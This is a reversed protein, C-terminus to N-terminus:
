KEKKAQKELAEIKTELKANEVKLKGNEVKLDKVRQEYEAIKEDNSTQEKKDSCGTILLLSFGLLMILKVTKKM